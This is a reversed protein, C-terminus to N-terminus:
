CHLERPRESARAVGPRVRTALQPQPTLCLHMWPAPTELRPSENCAGMVCERSM